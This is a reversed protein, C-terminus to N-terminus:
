DAPLSKCYTMFPGWKDEFKQKHGKITFNIKELKLFSLVERLWHSILPAQPSKWNLLIKRRAILSTFALIQSHTSSTITSNVPIGLIALYPNLEVKIDLAKSIITSFQSWFNKLMPCLFFTHSLDCPSSRCRECQDIIQPYMKSLRSKSYHVRYLIKFQVILQLRASRISSHINKIAKEWQEESITMGLEQEWSMRVKESPHSDLGKIQKYIVSIISKTNNKLSLLEEWPQINPTSPYTPFLASICHRVQFYCFLHTSPLENESSLNSFSVFANDKFLDRFTKIGCHRWRLYTTDFLGPPFLHNKLIPM